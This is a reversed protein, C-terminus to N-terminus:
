SDDGDTDFVKISLDDWNTFLDIGKIVSLRMASELGLRELASLEEGYINAELINSDDLSNMSARESLLYDRVKITMPDNVWQEFDSLTLQDM